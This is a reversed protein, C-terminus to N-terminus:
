GLLEGFVDSTEGGNWGWSTEPLGIARLVSLQAKCLNGRAERAHVGPRLGGCAGGAIVVPMESTGHKWGESYESTGWIACRDLLSTGTPETTGALVDLFRGFLEMQHAQAVRVRDWLGDHCTKHLGDTVGLNSFVHTTAPSTLMFSFVRTLNCRLAVALLESMADLKATVDGSDAPRAPVECTAASLDLRRQIESLHTLRGHLARADDMVADLMRARRGLAVLDDPVSFLQDHLQTPRLIPLNISDPGNYSIANWHGYDHFRAESIGIQVSRFRSPQDGYFADHRAVYQDLTPRLATLTHSPHDFGEPRIRDGTMAVMFGRMHGDSQGPPTPPVETKPELGTVVSVRHRSLPMLLESPAYGVGTAGPTWLDPYTVGATEGGMGAHWPLGNAWFFVGFIPGATTGDAHAGSPGLMADLTPLALTVAAGGVAGKLFTRRKLAKRGPGWPFSRADDRVAKPKKADSM